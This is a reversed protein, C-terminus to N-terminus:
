NSESWGDSDLERMKFLPGTGVNRSGRRLCVDHRFSARNVNLELEVASKVNKEIRLNNLLSETGLICLM